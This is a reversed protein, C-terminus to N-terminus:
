WNLGLASLERRILPLNWLKLTGDRSGSVLTQGDGAFVLSSVGSEHAEWSALERGGPIDRLRIMRDDGGSALLTGDPSVALCLVPGQHAQWSGLERAYTAAESWPGLHPRFPLPITDGQGTEVDDEIVRGDDLGSFLRKGSPDFAVARAGHPMFHLVKGTPAARVTLAAPSDQYGVAIRQGDPSFRLCFPIQGEEDWVARRKGAAPDWAEVRVLLQGGKPEGVAMVLTKGDPSIALRDVRSVGPSLPVAREQPTWQWLKFPLQSGPQILTAAWLRGAGDFGTWNGPTKQASSRLLLRDHNRAVDWITGNAALRKGDPSFSLADIQSRLVYTPAPDAVEWVKVVARDHTSASHGDPHHVTGRAITALFRGDGSWVPTHNERLSALRTQTEVDWLQIWETGGQAYAALFRGDPSFRSMQSMNYNGDGNLVGPLRCKVHAAATDWISVSDLTLL